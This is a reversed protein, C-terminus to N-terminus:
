KRNVLFQVIAELQAASLKQGFDPPMLGAFQEFGEAVDAAPDLISRRIYDASRRSGIGDFSPGIPVQAGDIGHCGICANVMLLERPDTTSSFTTATPTATQAPTSGGQSIDAATVTVTGGQSELFAVVAWIQDDTLQRRADPMIPPFGDVLFGQPNIMSEHIYTKCDKGAIRTGCRQGIPGQGSYDTLLNPARTGLGHCATCGGVGNFIADGASVLEDASVNGSLDITQPVGSQLQPIIQAITTYFGLVVVGVALVKLNTMLM